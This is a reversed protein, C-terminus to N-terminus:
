VTLAVVHEPLKGFGAFDIFLSGSLRLLLRGAVLLTSQAGALPTHTVAWRLPGSCANPPM